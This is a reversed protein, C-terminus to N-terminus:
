GEGGVRGVVGELGVTEKEGERREGGFTRRGAKFASNGARLPEVEGRTHEHTHGVDSIGDFTCARARQGTPTCSAM